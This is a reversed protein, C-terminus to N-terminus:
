FILENKIKEFDKKSIYKCAKVEDINKFGGKFEKYKVINNATKTDFGLNIWDSITMKNPNSKLDKPKNNKEVQINKEFRIYPKLKSLMYDNVAYCKRFQVVDKFKKNPLSNKFKLITKAQRETFGLDKIQTQNLKNIYFPKLIKKPKFDNKAYYGNSKKARIKVPSIKIYPRLEELKNDSIVYADGFEQISTFNGGVFYRYKILSIAQKQTFGLAMFGKENLANPNFNKLEIPKESKEAKNEEKFQLALVQEEPTFSQELSKAKFPYFQICLEVILILFILGFFGSRQRQTMVFHSFFYDEHKKKFIM